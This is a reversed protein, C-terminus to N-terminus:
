RLRSDPLSQSFPTTPLHLIRDIYTTSTPAQLYRLHDNFTRWVRIESFRNRLGLRPDFGCGESSWQSERVMSSGLSLHRAFTCTRSMHQRLTLWLLRMFYIRFANLHKKFSDFRSQHQGEHLLDINIYVKM